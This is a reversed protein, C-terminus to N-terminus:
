DFGVPESLEDNHFYWNGDEKILETRYFAQLGTSTTLKRYFVGKKGEIQVKSVEYSAYEIGQDRIRSQISNMLKVDEDHKGILLLEKANESGYNELFVVYDNAKIDGRYFNYLLDSAFRALEDPDTYVEKFVIPEDNVPGVPRKEIYELTEERTQEDYEAYMKEWEKVKQEYSKDQQEQVLDREKANKESVEGAQKVLRDAGGCATLTLAATVLLSSIFAKKLPKKM